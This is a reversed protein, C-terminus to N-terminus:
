RANSLNRGSDSGCFPLKCQGNDRQGGGLLHVNDMLILWGHPYCKECVRILEDSMACGLINVELRFKCFLVKTKGSDHFLFNM